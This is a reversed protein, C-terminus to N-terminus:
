HVGSKRRRHKYPYGKGALGPYRHVVDLEDEIEDLEEEIEDLDEEVDYKRKLDVHRGPQDNNRIRHPSRAAVPQSGPAYGVPAYGVPNDFGNQKSAKGRHNPNTKNANVPTWAQTRPPLKVDDNAEATTSPKVPPSSHMHTYDRELIDAAQLISNLGEHDKSSEHTADTESETDSGAADILNNVASELPYERKKFTLICLLVM